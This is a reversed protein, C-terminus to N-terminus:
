PQIKGEEVNRLYTDTSSIERNLYGVQERLDVLASAVSDALLSLRSLRVRAMRLEYALRTELTNAMDEELASAPIAVLVVGAM